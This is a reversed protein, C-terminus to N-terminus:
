QPPATVSYQDVMLSYGVLKGPHLQSVATAVPLLHCQEFAGFM